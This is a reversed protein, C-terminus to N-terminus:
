LRHQVSIAQLNVGASMAIITAADEIAGVTAKVGFGATDGTGAMIKDGKSVTGALQLWWEMNQGATDLAAITQIAVKQSGEPGFANGLTIANYNGAVALTSTEAVQDYVVLMGKPIFDTAADTNFTGSMDPTRGRSLPM